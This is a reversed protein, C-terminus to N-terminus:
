KMKYSIVIRMSILVAKTIMQFLSWTLMDKFETSRSSRTLKTLPNLNPNM